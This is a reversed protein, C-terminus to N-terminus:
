GIKHKSTYISPHISQHTSPHIPPHISPHISLYVCLVLTPSIKAIPFAYIYKTSGVELGKTTSALALKFVCVCM